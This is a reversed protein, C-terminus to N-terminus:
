RGLFELGAKRLAEGSGLGMRKIGMMAEVMPINLPVASDQPLYFLGISLPPPGPRRPVVPFPRHRHEGWFRTWSARPSPSVAPTGSLLLARM